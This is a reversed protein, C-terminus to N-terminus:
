MLLNKIDDPSANDLTMVTNIVTSIDTESLGGAKANTRFKAYLDKDSIPRHWHGYPFDCTGMYQQGDKTTVTVSLNMQDLNESVVESAVMETVSLLQQLENRHLKDPTFSKPEVKGDLLASCAIFQFSHRAGHEDKPTPRDIYNTKPVGISVQKVDKVYLIGDTVLNNRIDLVADKAWHMGIHAPISKLAVDQTHLCWGGIDCHIEEICKPRYDGFYAAFGDPGDLIRESGEVGAQSLLAAELGHRAANGVYLPKTQTGANALPAGAFSTAIALAHQCRLSDLGLLKASAAASGM